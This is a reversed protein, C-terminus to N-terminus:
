YVSCQVEAACNLACANKVLNNLKETQIRPNNNRMAVLGAKKLLGLLEDNTLGLLVALSNPDEEDLLVGYWWSHV